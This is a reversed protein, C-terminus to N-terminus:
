NTFRELAPREDRTMSYWLVLAFLPISISLWPVFPLEFVFHGLLTVGFFFLIIWRLAAYKRGKREKGIAFRRKIFRTLTPKKFIWAYLEGGGVGVVILILWYWTMWEWGGWGMM